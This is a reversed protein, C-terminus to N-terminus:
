IWGLIMAIGLGLLLLGAIWHLKKINKERWSSIDEVAMFGFYVFLTIAIMPSIFIIMYLFLYPFAGIFSLNSLIGGAVFYPGGTCPTLFFSIILGVIFAGKVSTTGRIIEKMKPRWKMPVEMIFGGGGYWIADKINLLGLIIAIVALFQYFWTETIQAFDAIFKFGAIILLGFIFYMIFIASSFSLGVKLARKKKRPFKTLIATMLIVLIALECPNITDTVALSILRFLSLEESDETQEESIEPCECGMEECIQIQSEINDIIEFEGFFYKDNIFLIPVSGWVPIGNITEPVNYKIYLKYLLESEIAANLKNFELSPYKSEITEIHSEARTCHPCGHGYFFYICVKEQAQVLKINILLLFLVLFFITKKM